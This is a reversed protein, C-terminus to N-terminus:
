LYFIGSEKGKKLGKELDHRTLGTITVAERFSGYVTGHVSIKKAFPNNAGQRAKKAEPDSWYAKMKEGYAERAGPTAWRKDRLKKQAARYEDREWLIATPSYADSALNLCLPDTIAAKIYGDEIEKYDDGTNVITTAVYTGHTNYATQVKANKHKKERLAWDHTAIRGRIDKTSGIYYSGDPFQLMYVGKNPKDLQFRMSNLSLGKERAEKLRTLLVLDAQEKDQCVEIDFTFDKPEETLDYLEQCEKSKHKGTSLLTYHYRQQKALNNTKGSYVKNTAIHRLHYVGFLPKPM